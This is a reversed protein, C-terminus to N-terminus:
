NKLKTSKNMLILAIISLLLTMLFVVLLSQYVDIVSVGLFGYRFADVMYFIPNFLSVTQWFEPLVDISYFLGGLYILPMMIFTPVISIDDFSNAFIANIFGGVAFLVATMVLVAILVLINFINFDVFFSVVISVSLGVLLGRFVGGVVYGVLIVWNSVPAVLLEEFSRNFKSLYFSAVTNAYSNQIVTMLIIGPVIFHLYEVGLMPGIREGILQGFILLYLVTTIIPPFITQLWIRMFRLTEKFVITKLVVLNNM